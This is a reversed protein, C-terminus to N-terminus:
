MYIKLSTSHMKHLSLSLSLPLGGGHIQQQRHIDDFLAHTSTLVRPSFPPLKIRKKKIGGEAEEEEKKEREETSGILAARM